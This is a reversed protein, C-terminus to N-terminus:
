GPPRIGGIPLAGGTDQFVSCAEVQRPDVKELTIPVTLAFVPSVFQEQFEAKVNCVWSEPTANSETSTCELTIPGIAFPPITDPAISDIPFTGNVIRVFQVDLGMHAGPKDPSHVNNKDNEERTIITGDLTTMIRFQERDGNPDTEPM